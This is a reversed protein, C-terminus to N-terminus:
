VSTAFAIALVDRLHELGERDFELLAAFGIPLILSYSCISLHVGFKEGLVLDLSETV